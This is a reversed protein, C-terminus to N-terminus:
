KALSEYYNKLLVRYELPLERAFNENLAARDRRGLVEWESHQDEPLDGKVAMKQFIDFKDLQKLEIDSDEKFPDSYPSKKKGNGRGLWVYTYAYELIFGRMFGEAHRQERYAEERSSKKLLSPVKLLHEQTAVLVQHNESENVLERLKSLLNEQSQILANNQKDNQLWLARTLVKQQISLDLVELLLKLEENLDKPQLGPVRVLKVMVARFEGKDVNIAGEARNMDPLAKERKGEKLLKVAKDMYRETSHFHGQKTVRYLDNGFKEAQRYLAEQIKLIEAPKIKNDFQADYNLQKQAAFIIMAETSKRYIFNMMEAVYSNRAAIIKIDRATENLLASAETQSSAAEAPKNAELLVAASGFASQSFELLSQMDMNDIPGALSTMICTLCKALNKQEKALQACEEASAQKGATVIDEQEAGIDSFYGGTRAISRELTVISVLEGLIKAEGNLLSLAAQLSSTVEDQKALSDDGENKKLLAASASISEVANNLPDLLASSFGTFKKNGLSVEIDRHLAQVENGLHKQQDVLYVVPKEDDLADETQEVMASQRALYDKIKTTRGEINMLITFFEGFQSMEKIRQNIIDILQRMAQNANKQRAPEDVQIDALLNEFIQRPNIEAPLDPDLMSQRPMPIRPLIVKRLSSYRSAPSSREDILLAHISNRSKILANMEARSKLRYVTTKLTDLIDSQQALSEQYQKSAFLTSVDLM